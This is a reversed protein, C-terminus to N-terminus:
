RRPKRAILADYKVGIDENKLTTVVESWTIGFQRQLASNADRIAFERDLNRAMSRFMQAVDRNDSELAVRMADCVLDEATRNSRTGDFM